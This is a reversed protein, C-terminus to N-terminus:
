TDAPLSFSSRAIRVRSPFLRVALFEARTPAETEAPTERSPLYCPCFVAYEGLVSSIRGTTCPPYLLSASLLLHLDATAAVLLLLYSPMLGSLRPAEIFAPHRALNYLLAIARFCLYFVM